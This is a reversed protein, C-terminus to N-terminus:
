RGPHICVSMCYGALEPEGCPPLDVVEPPCCLKGGCDDPGGCCLWLVEPRASVSEIGWALSMSCSLLLVFRLRAM